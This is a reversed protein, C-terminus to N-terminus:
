PCEAYMSAASRLWTLSGERENAVLFLGVEPRAAIGGPGILSRTLGNRERMWDIGVPQGSDFVLRDDDTIRYAMAAHSEQLPFVAFLGGAQRVLVIQEPEPIETSDGADRNYDDPVDGSAVLDVTDLVAGSALDVLLVDDS